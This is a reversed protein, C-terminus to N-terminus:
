HTCGSAYNFTAGCLAGCGYDTYYKEVFCPVLEETCTKGSRVVCSGYPIGQGDKSTATTDDSCKAGGAPCCSYGPYCGGTTVLCIFGERPQASGLLLPLLGGVLVCALVVCIRNM